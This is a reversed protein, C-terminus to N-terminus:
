RTGRQLVLDVALPYGEIGLGFLQADTGATPMGRTAINTPQVEVSFCDLDGTLPALDANDPSPQPSLLLADWIDPLNTLASRLAARDSATRVEITRGEGEYGGVSALVEAAFSDDPHELLILINM